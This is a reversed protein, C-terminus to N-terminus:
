PDLGAIQVLTVQFAESESRGRKLDVELNLLAVLTQHLFPASLDRVEKQLFYVRNPNSIDAAQAIIKPDKEGQNLMIRIWLWTRFQGVLVALIKLAPENNSLLHTLIDLARDVHRQRLAQALQFSNFATAPVLQQVMEASITQAPDSILLSLKELETFLKRSDNGVAEALLESAATTLTLNFDAAQSKVQKLIKDTDWTPLRNFEEVKAIQKLLKTSKLRGDLKHATTLLLHTTDPVQPLTRQLEAWVPDPCQQCLKTEELWVLRSGPGMPPTMSQNLGAITSEAPFRDYNFAAWAPDVVLDRLRQVAKELRYSDDGWYLYIPM